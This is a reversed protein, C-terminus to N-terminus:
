GPGGPSTGSRAPLSPGGASRRWPSKDTGTTAFGYGARDSVSSMGAPEARFPRPPGAELPGTSAPQAPSGDSFGPQDPFPSECHAYGKRMGDAAVPTGDVTIQCGVKKGPSSARVSLSMPSAAAGPSVAMQITRVWPLRPNSLSGSHNFDTYDEWTLTAARGGGVVEYEIKHNTGVDQAGVHPLRRLVLNSLQTLVDRPDKESKGKVGSLVIGLILAGRRVRIEHPEPTPDTSGLSRDYWSEDAPGVVDNALGSTRHAQTLDDKHEQLGTAFVYEAYEATPLLTLTLEDNSRYRCDLSSSGGGVTDWLSPQRVHGLRAYDAKTLLGCMDSTLRGAAPQPWGGPPPKGDVSGAVPDCGALALVVLFAFAVRRM